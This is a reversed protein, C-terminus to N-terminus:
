PASHAKKGSLIHLQASQFQIVYIRGHAPVEKIFHIFDVYLTLDERHKYPTYIINQALPRVNVTRLLSQNQNM